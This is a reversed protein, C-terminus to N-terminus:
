VMGTLDALGSQASGPRLLSKSMETQSAVVLVKM